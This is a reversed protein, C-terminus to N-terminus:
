YAISVQWQLASVRWRAGSRRDCPPSQRARVACKVGASAWHQLALEVRRRPGRTLPVVAHALRCSAAARGAARRAQMQRQLAKLDGFLAATQAEVLQAGEASVVRTMELMAAQDFQEVYRRARWRASLAWGSWARRQMSLKVSFVLNLLLAKRILRKNANAAGLALLPRCCCRQSMARPRPKM